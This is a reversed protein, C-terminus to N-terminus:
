IALAKHSLLSDKRSKLDALIITDEQSLINRSSQLFLDKIDDEIQDREMCRERKKAKKWLVVKHKLRKLKFILPKM